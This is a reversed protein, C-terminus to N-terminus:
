LKLNKKNFMKVYFPLKTQLKIQNLTQLGENLDEATSCPVPPAEYRLLVADAYFRKSWPAPRAGALWRCCSFPLIWFEGNCDNRPPKSYHKEVNELPSELNEM